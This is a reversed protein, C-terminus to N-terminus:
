FKATVSAMASEGPALDGCPIEALGGVIPATQTQGVIGTRVTNSDGSIPGDALWTATNVVLKPGTAVQALLPLAPRFRVVVNTATQTEASPVSVTMTFTVIEGVAVRRKDATLTLIPDVPGTQTVGLTAQRMSPVTPASRGPALPLLIIGALLLLSLRTRM